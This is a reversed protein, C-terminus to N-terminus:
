GFVSGSVYRSLSALNDFPLTIDGEGGFGAVRFNVKFRSVYYREPYELCYVTEPPLLHLEIVDGIAFGSSEPVTCDFTFGSSIDSKGVAQETLAGSGIIKYKRGSSDFLTETIKTEGGEVYATSGYLKKLDDKEEEPTYSTLFRIEADSHLTGVYNLFSDTNEDGAEDSASAASGVAGREVARVISGSLAYGIGTGIVAAFAFVVALELCFIASVSRKKLGLAHLTRKEDSRSSIFYMPFFLVLGICVFLVTFFVIQVISKVNEIEVKAIKYEADNFCVMFRMFDLGSDNLYQIYGDISDPSKLKIDVRTGFYHEPYSNMVGPGELLLKTYYEYPIYAPVNTLTNKDVGGFIGVVKFESYYRSSGVNNAARFLRLVVTDGVEIGHKECYAIPLAAENGSEVYRGSVLKLSGNYFARETKMDTVTFVECEDTYLVLDDAEDYGVAQMEALTGIYATNAFMTGQRTFSYDEVLPSAAFTAVDSFLFEERKHVVKGAGDVEARPTLTAYMEYHDYLYLLANDTARLLFVGLFTTVVLVTMIILYLVSRAPMRVVNRFAMRFFSFGNEKKM